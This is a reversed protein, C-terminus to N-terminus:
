STSSVVNRIASVMKQINPSLKCLLFLIRAHVPKMISLLALMDLNRDRTFYKWLRKAEISLRKLLERSMYEKGLIKGSNFIITPSTSFILSRSITYKWSHADLSSTFEMRDKGILANFYFNWPGRFLDVSSMTIKIKSISVWWRTLREQALKDM